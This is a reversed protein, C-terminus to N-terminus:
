RCRRHRSDARIAQMTALGDMGPMNWDVLVADYRVQPQASCPRNATGASDCAGAARPIARCLYDASTSDDDVVLLHQGPRHTQRASPAPQLPVGVIFESGRRLHQARRHRGM